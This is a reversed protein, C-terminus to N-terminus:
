QSATCLLYLEHLSAFACIGIVALTAPFRFAQPILPFLFLSFGALKNLRTHLFLCKHFRIKSVCVASLRILAILIICLLVSKSLNLAPLLTFFTSLIFVFDAASDLKAGFASEAKIKRALFGDAMDSIGCLLYFLTFMASFPRTIPLCFSLAIRFVSLFNPVNKRAFLKM